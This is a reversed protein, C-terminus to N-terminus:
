RLCVCEDVTCVFIPLAQLQGTSNPCSILGIKKKTNALGAAFCFFDSESNGLLPNQM